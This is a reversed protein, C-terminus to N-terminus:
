RKGGQEDVYEQAFNESNERHAKALSQFGPLGKASQQRAPLSLKNLFFCYLIVM